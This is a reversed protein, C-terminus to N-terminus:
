NGSSFLLLPHSAQTTNHFKQLDFKLGPSPNPNNKNRTKNRGDKYGSTYRWITRTSGIEWMSENDQKQGSIIDAM